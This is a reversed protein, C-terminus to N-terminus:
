EVASLTGVIIEEFLLLDIEFHRTFTHLEIFLEEVTWEGETLVVVNETRLEVTSGHLICPCHCESIFVDELVLHIPIGSAIQHDSDGM